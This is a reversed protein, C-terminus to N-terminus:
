EAFSKASVDRVNSSAMRVVVPAGTYAFDRSYVPPLRRYAESTFKDSLFGM